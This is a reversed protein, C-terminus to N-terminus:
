ELHFGALKFGEFARLPSTKQTVSAGSTRPTDSCIVSSHQGTKASAEEPHTRTVPLDRAEDDVSISGPMM